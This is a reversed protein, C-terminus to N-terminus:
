LLRSSTWDAKSNNNRSGNEMTSKKRKSDMRHHRERGERRRHGRVLGLEV